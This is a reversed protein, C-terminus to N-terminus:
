AVHCNFLVTMTTGSSLCDEDKKCYECAAISGPDSEQDSALHPCRKSTMKL